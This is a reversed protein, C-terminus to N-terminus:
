LHSWTVRKAIYHVTPISVGYLAAQSTQSAGGHLAARIALVDADALKSRACDVGLARRKSMGHVRYVPVTGDIAFVVLDDFMEAIELALAGSWTM